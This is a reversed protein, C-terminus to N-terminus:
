NGLQCRSGISFYKVEAPGSPYLTEPNGTYNGTAKVSLNPLMAAKSQSFYAEAELVKQVAIQLDSNHDLGEQILKELYTETFLERWPKHAITATDTKESNGFLGKTSVTERQFHHQTSCSYLMGTLGAILIIHKISTTRM